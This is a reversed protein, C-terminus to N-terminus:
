SVPQFSLYTIQGSVLPFGLPENEPMRHLSVLSLTQEELSALWADLLFHDTMVIVAHGQEAHQKAQSCAAAYSAPEVLWAFITQSM